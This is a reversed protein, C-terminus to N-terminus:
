WAKRIFHIVVYSITGYVIVPIALLILSIAVALLYTGHRKLTSM